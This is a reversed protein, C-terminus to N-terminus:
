RRQKELLVTRARELQERERRTLSAMGDRSIKELLPDIIRHPDIPREDPKKIVRLRPQKTRHSFPRLRSFVNPELSWNQTLAFWAFAASSTLAVFSTIDRDGLFLISFLALTAWGFLKAPLDFLLHANPLAFTYAVFMSFLALNLPTPEEGVPIPLNALMVAEYGVVLYCLTLCVSPALILCLFFRLYRATGLLTEVERGLPYFICLQILLWVANSEGNLLAYTAIRWVQFHRIAQQADFSFLGTLESYQVPGILSKVLALAAVVILYGVALLTTGYVPLRGIWMIPSSGETQWSTIM